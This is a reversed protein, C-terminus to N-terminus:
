NAVPALTSNSWSMQEAIPYGCHEISPEGNSKLQKMSRKDDAALTTQRSIVRDDEASLCFVENSLEALM